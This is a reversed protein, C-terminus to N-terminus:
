RTQQEDRIYRYLTFGLLGFAIFAIKNGLSPYKAVLSLGINWKKSILEIIMGIFTGGAVLGTAYLTAKSMVSTGSLPQSQKKPKESWYRLLGGVFLASSIWLPLYMGAAVSLVTAGSFHVLVSFIMGVILLKWALQGGLMMKILMALFNAQQPMWKPADEGAAKYGIAHDVGPISGDVWLVLFAVIMGSFLAGIFLAFQQKWPTAGVLFGTKLDQSTAGSIGTSLCVVGSIVVVVLQHVPSKLGFLSFLLCTGIATIFMMSSVPEMSYGMVGVFRSSVTVFFFGFVLILFAALIREPLTGPFIPLFTLLCFIILVGLVAFEMPIEKETRAVQKKQVDAKLSHVVTGIAASIIPITKILTIIGAGMVMGLAVFRGYATFVHIALPLEGPKLDWKLKLDMYTEYVSKANLWLPIQPYASFLPVIVLWVLIGGLMMQSSARLGMLYGVGIFEPFVDMSLAANPYLGNPARPSVIQPRTSWLGFLKMAMLYLGAMGFGHFIPRALGSQTEGAVLVNACATGEPYPLTRHEKVILNRRLPIMMLIGMLAGMVAILALQTYRFYGEGKELLIFAVLTYVVNGAIAGGTSGITQVINNELITGRGSKKFIGIVLVTIPISGGVTMGARLALYVSATAFIAAFMLGILVSKITLESVQQTSPVYPSHEASSVPQEELSRDM